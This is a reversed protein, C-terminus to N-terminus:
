VAEQKKKLGDIFLLLRNVVNVESVGSDFDLSLMRMSPCLQRIRKEVGKSVIHNAICGFPQLSIVHDIGQRSLSMIEGPLVWGEGFQANLTVVKSAEESEEFINMFPTYYRFRSALADVKAVRKGVLGYLWKIVIDPVRKRVIGSDQKVKLNVFSQLFFDTLLPPVVEIGHSILWDCINHQAFPNFKLYIEGVIGVRPYDGDNVAGDFEEAAATLMELLADSSNDGIPGAAAALWKDRLSAALGPRKERIVTANYFKAICDSYLLSTLVIPLLKFWNMTFGPQVNGLGGGFTLSVVPVDGYGSETLAKKILAIYNSARCQGGTQTIAVASQGPDHRGEKFAKVVDGVILTAPYCVENNAYRLGWDCSQKDSMPLNEVDYGALKMLPPILPSIFPTFFPALLKRHRDEKTYPPTTMFPQETVQSPHAALKLSEIASRVRLKLSGVNSVDDIKLLTLAKGHRELLSRVEDTLFADPGCGFSTLEMFQVNGGQMAAWKAAKLIRNAYAWQSVFHVDDLPVDEDRVLDDTIVDVGMAAIMESLKHQILQDAHYPRGALMVTMRGAKASEDLISRDCEAMAAEFEDMAKVADDFALCVTKKDIGLQALYDECQRRLLHRDKFNMAPSDVPVDTQQVSKVVQSYGTVIPCNYSNQGGELKEFVVFPMFIREVGQKELDHIHSHVLKAPFCINDSMVLNAKAEYASFGSPSSLVVKIGCNTFLTHWFPYEEFMNLCRPIGIVAKPADVCSTREFLLALKAQYANEGKDHGKGKNNFIRECRNGSYYTGGGAFKYVSISCRNECGHCSRQTVTCTARGLLDDVTASSAFRRAHLACGVAGMLEPHDTRAVEVGVLKEFARVVSDNKMTGGQVVISKGLEATNKLKLVKYLCNKVVSYSLGAAIDAMTAGERLAQKVKSNMFVTCRTGLDCPNSARCALRAFDDVTSGLSKAFTEIFSGCGSSCAENIEIRNVVGGEVFMAKMDQGGIDLIFSVDKSLHRAAAYHAMTEIMGDDLNFAAKILDEGYGTSCSGTVNVETGARECEQRFLRLGEEVAEVPSGENPRYFSFIMEDDANLVVIKTTTSGSDIGITVDEHGPALRKSKLAHTAIRARWAEYDSDSAFIPELGGKSIRVSALSSDIKEKLAAMTMVGAEDDSLAAGWAPILHSDAPAIMMDAPINLYDAFSKRLAKLFSLPGGCLLVPPEISCGHALTVVVQVAVAHFVSAAIDEKSVNKAILNQIDTKGFVGCRSAVPYIRTSHSALEDLDSVSVGLLIAMQDIFAGTGGACNGNMRLDTVEGNEFFVVKADEGGIDIMTSIGRRESRIYNTAAVVEQVFPLGCREAVGMAVSGTLHVTAEATVESIRQMLSSLAERVRANHREYSTFVVKGDGDLVVAKITTSGIDLGVRYKGRMM